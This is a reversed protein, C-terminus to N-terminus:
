LQNWNEDYFEYEVETGDPLYMCHTRLDVKLPTSQSVEGNIIKEVGEEYTDCEVEYTHYVKEIMTIQKKAKAM